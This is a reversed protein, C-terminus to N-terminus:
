EAISFRAPRKQPAKRPREIRRNAGRIFLIACIAVMSWICLIVTLASM